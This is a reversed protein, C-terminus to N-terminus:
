EIFYLFDYFSWFSNWIIKKKKEDESNSFFTFKMKNHFLFFWKNNFLLFFFVGFCMYSFFEGKHFRIHHPFTYYAFSFFHFISFYLVHFSIIFLIFLFFQTFNSSISHHDWLYSNAADLNKKPQFNSALKL